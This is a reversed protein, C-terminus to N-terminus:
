QSDNTKVRTHLGSVKTKFFKASKTSEVHKIFLKIVEEVLKPDDTPAPIESVLQYKLDVKIQRLELEDEPDAEKGTQERIEKLRLNILDHLRDDEWTPIQSEEDIKRHLEENVEDKVEEEAEPTEEKPSPQPLFFEKKEPKKLSSSTSAGRM